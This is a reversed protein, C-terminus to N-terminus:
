LGKRRKVRTRRAEKPDAILPRYLEVRDGDIVLSQRDVRKGFIGVPCQALNAEPHRAAIGSRDLADAVTSGSPLLVDIETASEPLAYVVTVSILNALTGERQASRYEAATLRRKSSDCRQAKPRRGRERVPAERRPKAGSV